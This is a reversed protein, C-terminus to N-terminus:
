DHKKGDNGPTKFLDELASSKEKPLVRGRKGAYEEEINDRYFSWAAGSTSLRSWVDAGVGSYDIASGDDFEVRLIRQRADYGIARLKGANIKKMEM